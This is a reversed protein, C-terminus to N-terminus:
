VRLLSPRIEEIEEEIARVIREGRIKRFVGVNKSSESEDFTRGGKEPGPTQVGLQHAIEQRYGEDSVFDEFWITRYQREGEGSLANDMLRGIRRAAMRVQEECWVEGRDFMRSAICDRPDRLVAVGSMNPTCCLWDLQWGKIVNNLVVLGGPDGERSVVGEVWRGCIERIREEDIKKNRSLEVGLEEIWMTTVNLCQKLKESERELVMSVSKQESGKKESGDIGLVVSLAVKRIESVVNERDGEISNKLSDLSFPGQFMRTEAGRFAVRVGEFQRIYDVVAGSGSWGFGSVALIRAGHSRADLLEDGSSLHHGRSRPLQKLGDLISAFAERNERVGKRLLGLRGVISNIQEKNGRKVVFDWTEQCLEKECRKEEQKQLEKELVSVDSGAFWFELVSDDERLQTLHRRAEEIRGTKAAALGIALRLHTGFIELGEWPKLVEHVWEWKGIRAALEAASYILNMRKIEDSIRELLSSTKDLLEVSEGRLRARNGEGKPERQVLDRAKKVWEEYESDDYHLHEGINRYFRFSEPGHYPRKFPTADWCRRVFDRDVAAIRELNDQTRDFYSTTREFAVSSNDAWFYKAMKYHRVPLVGRSLPLLAQCSWNEGNSLLAHFGQNLDLNPDFRFLPVKRLCDLTGFLRFRVDVAQAIPWRDGFAWRIPSAEHYGLVQSPPRDYHWSLVQMFNRKDVSRVSPEPMLDVLLGPFHAWGRTEATQVLGALPSSATGREREAVDVFEDVDVTLVWSGPVQFASMLARLWFVKCSQFSGFRPRFVTVDPGAIYSDLPEDSGDDVVFFREVGLARYHELWPELFEFNNANVAYLTIAASVEPEAGGVHTVLKEIDESCEPARVYQRQAQDLRQKFTRRCKETRALRWGTYAANLNQYHWLLNDHRLYDAGRPNSPATLAGLDVERRIVPVDNLSLIDHFYRSQKALDVGPRSVYVVNPFRTLAQLMVGMEDFQRPLIEELYPCERYLWTPLTLRGSTGDGWNGSFHHILLDDDTENVLRLIQEVEYTSLYNDADLSSYYETDIVNSFANKAWAFHWYPLPDFRYFELLGSSLAEPFNERIWCECADDADVCAILLRTQFGFREIVAVNHALTAQLDALRNMLPICFAVGREPSVADSGVVSM